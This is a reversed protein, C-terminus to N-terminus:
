DWFRKHKPRLFNEVDDEYYDPMGNKDMGVTQGIMFRYFEQLKEIGIRKIVEQTTM